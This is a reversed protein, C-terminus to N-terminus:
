ADDIVRALGREVMGKHEATLAITYQAGVALAQAAGADLHFTVANDTVAWSAVGGYHNARGLTLSYTDLGLLKDTEDPNLNRQVELRAGSGDGNEAFIVAVLSLEPVNQFTVASATFASM